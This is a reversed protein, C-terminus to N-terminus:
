RTGIFLSNLVMCPVFCVVFIDQLITVLFPVRNELAESYLEPLGHASWAGWCFGQKNSPSCRGEQAPSWSGGRASGRGTWSHCLQEEPPFIDEM